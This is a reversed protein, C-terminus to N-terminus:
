IVRKWRVPPYPTRSVALLRAYVDDLRKWRASRWHMMPVVDIFVGNPQDPPAPLQQAVAFFRPMDDAWVAIDLDDDWPVFGHDHRAIGLCGGGILFYAIKEAECLAIVAQLIELLTAHSDTQNMNM